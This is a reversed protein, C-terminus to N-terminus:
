NTSCNCCEASHAPTAAALLLAGAVAGKSSCCIGLSNRPVQLLAMVDQIASNAEAASHFLPGAIQPLCRRCCAALMTMM